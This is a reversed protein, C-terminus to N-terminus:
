GPALRGDGQPGVLVLLLCWRRRACGTAPAFPVLLAGLQQGQQLPQLVLQRRVSLLLGRGGPLRRCGLLRPVALLHSSRLLAGGLRRGASSPRGAHLWRWNM